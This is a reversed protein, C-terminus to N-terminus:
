RRSTGRGSHKLERRALVLGPAMPLWFTFGRLLLTATLAVEVSQGQVHLVTVCVAEFTGLGLPMPGVTSALSAMAFAAIASAPSGNAGLAHLMIWLTGADLAFILLQLVTASVFSLPDHLMEGPAKSMASKLASFGPVRELWRNAVAVLGDKNGRQSWHRARLVIAPIGFAVLIFAAAAIIMTRNLAHASYLIGLGSLVVALYAIYFSVLGILLAAMAVGSPVGRRDLGSVVLLTGGIGGTPLAQDTFLKALGLPVISWFSQRIGARRLTGYWVGAACLYTLIQLVFAALLWVPQAKRAIEGFRQIETFRAAVLMVAALVLLGFLWSLGLRWSRAPREASNRRPGM